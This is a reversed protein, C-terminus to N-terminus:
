VAGEAQFHRLVAKGYPHQCDHAIKRFIEQHLPKATCPSMVRSFVSILVAFILELTFVNKCFIKYGHFNGVTHYFGICFNNYQHHLTGYMYSNLHLYM